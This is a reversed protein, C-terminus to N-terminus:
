VQVSQVLHAARWAGQLWALGSQGQHAARWAGLLWVLGRATEAALTRSAVAKPGGRAGRLM